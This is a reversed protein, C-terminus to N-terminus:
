RSGFRIGFPEPIYEGNIQREVMASVTVNELFVIQNGRRFSNMLPHDRVARALCTIVFGTLSLSEGTKERYQKMFLRPESIDVEFIAHINNQMRGATASAVVMRRQQSFPATHYAIPADQTGELQTRFGPVDSRNRNVEKKQM